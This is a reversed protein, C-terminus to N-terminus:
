RVLRHSRTPKSIASRSSPSFRRAIMQKRLRAKAENM